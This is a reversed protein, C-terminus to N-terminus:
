ARAPVPKLTYGLARDVGIHCLWLGVLAWTLPAATLVAVVALMGPGALAHTANYGLASRRTLRGEADEGAAGADHVGLDPALWALLLWPSGLAVCAVGAAIGVVAWTLRGVTM